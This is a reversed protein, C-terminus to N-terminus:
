SRNKLPPRVTPLTALRVGIYGLIPFSASNTGSPEGIHLVDGELKESRHVRGGGGSEVGMLM